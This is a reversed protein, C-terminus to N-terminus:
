RSHLMLYGVTDAAMMTTELMWFPLTGARVDLQLISLLFVWVVSGKGQRPVISSSVLIVIWKGTVDWRSREPIPSPFEVRDLASTGFTIIDDFKVSFVADYLM